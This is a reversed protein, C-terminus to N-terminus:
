RPPAWDTLFATLRELSYSRGSELVSTDQSHLLKGESDLVFLHPYGPIPPYKSLFDKNENDESFNIKVVVFNKDRLLLLDANAQFFRDLTHCWSCWQGGVELLIRKNTRQAEKIADQIDDAANRKPDYETVPIYKTQSAPERPNQAVGLRLSLSAVITVLLVAALYYRLVPM